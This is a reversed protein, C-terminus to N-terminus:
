LLNYYRLSPYSHHILTFGHTYTLIMAYRYPHQSDTLFNGYPVSTSCRVFCSKDPDMEEKDSIDWLDPQNLRPTAHLKTVNGTTFFICLLCVYLYPLTLASSLAHPPLTDQWHVVIPQAIVEFNAFILCYHLSSPQM